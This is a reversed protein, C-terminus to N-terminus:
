SQEGDGRTIRVIIPGKGKFGHGGPNMFVSNGVNGIRGAVIYQYQHLEPVSDEPSIRIELHM